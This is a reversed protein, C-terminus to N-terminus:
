SLVNLVINNKLVPKRSAPVWELIQLSISLKLVVMETHKEKLIM